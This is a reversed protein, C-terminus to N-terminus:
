CVPLHVCIKVHFFVHVVLNEMDLFHFVVTLQYKIRSVSLTMLRNFARPLYAGMKFRYFVHILLNVKGSWYIVSFEYRIAAVMLYRINWFLFSFGLCVFRSFMDLYVYGLIENSSVEMVSYLNVTEHWVEVDKVEKFKLGPGLLIKLYIALFICIIKHM